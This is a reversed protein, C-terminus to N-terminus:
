DDSKQLQAKAEQRIRTFTQHLEEQVPAWYKEPVQIVYTGNNYGETAYDFLKDALEFDHLHIWAAIVGRFAEDLTLLVLKEDSPENSKGPFQVVNTMPTDGAQEEANEDVDDNDEEQDEAMRTAMADFLDALEENVTCGVGKRYCDSLHKLPVPDLSQAAKTFYEIAKGPTAGEMLQKLHIIGLNNMAEWCGAEAGKTFWYYAINWDVYQKHDDPIEGNNDQWFLSYNWGIDNAAEGDGALAQEWVKPRGRFSRFLVFRQTFVSQDGARHCVAEMEFCDPIDSKQIVIPGNIVTNPPLILDRILYENLKQCRGYISVSEQSHKIEWDSLLHWGEALTRQTQPTPSNSSIISYGSTDRNDTCPHKPWPPGLEDFFVRGGNETEIFFVPDSCVPCKANPEVLRAKRWIKGDARQVSANPPAYPIYGGTDGGFGCDCDLPHNWANCGM